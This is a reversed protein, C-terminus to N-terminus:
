GTSSDAAHLAVVNDSNAAPNLVRDCHDAWADLAQRKEPGWGHRQYVAAVGSRSAGATHNLVAETVEFRVGLRQLGTALTRRADHLRWPAVTVVQLPRGAEKADDAALKSMLADLRPKAHSYGSVTTKGTTTFIMGRRPWEPRDEGEQRTLRDLVALAHRNLPIVNAEGNKSRERPLTWVANARDLENWDLGAVEERRQGTAFLLQYLPGFPWGLQDAARLALALEEDSLVRDRSAPAPPAKMGDMPTASIDGREKAWGFLRRLVAFTNHRVSPQTAPIADLLKAIDRRTISPLPTNKLSPTAHLRLAAEIFGYSRPCEPKARLELYRLAYADFALERETTKAELRAKRDAHKKDIPDTGTRAQHALEQARKRAADPAMKEVRGIIERRVPTGRGGMRFQYIYSKAGAPTVRVGFGIPDNDWLYHTKGTAQLGDIARKSITGQAM